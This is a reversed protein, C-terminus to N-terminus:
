LIRSREAKRGGVTVRVDPEAIRCHSRLVPDYEEVSPVVELGIRAVEQEDEAPGMGSWRIVRAKSINEKATM